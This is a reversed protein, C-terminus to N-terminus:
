YISYGEPNPFIMNDLSAAAEAAMLNLAVSTRIHRGPLVRSWEWFM